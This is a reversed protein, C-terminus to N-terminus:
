KFFNGDIHNFVLAPMSSWAQLLSGDKHCPSFFEVPTYNGKELNYTFWRTLPYKYDLGYMLKAYAYAGSLYPWDGGNHYSYPLSSKFVISDPNKYFPYVSLVGFDGATQENNNASELMSEMKKLMSVAREPATLSYLAVVVTDISLNDETKDGDKFNIFYGKGEDWLETNLATKVREYLNAYSTSTEGSTFTSLAYLARAYLAEDYTVYGGRFVNDCWDRRNYEGGKVLLGTSDTEKKLREIVAIALDLDTRKGIKESLIGNDKTHSIYDYILIVFFSPSDYHNGWYNRFNYKVASPCEGNKGIGRALTLIENRVLDPRVALVPLCTWYGDRFYTRAPFQYVLGALFGKFLGREKYNGLACNLCSAYLAKETETEAAPSKLSAFYADAAAEYKEIEPLIKLVDAFSFDYRTGSSMILDVTKTEGKKIEATIKFQHQFFPNKELPTMVCNSAFDIYYDGLLSSRIFNEGRVIHKKLLGGVAKIITKLSFRSMFLQEIYSTYNVGLNVAAEFKIDETAAIKIRTIVANDAESLFQSINIDAEKVAFEIGIKRGGLTVKKEESYSLPAGNVSYIMSVGDTAEFKNIVAYRTINGRGDFQANLLKNGVDYPVREFFPAAIIIAGDSLTKTM